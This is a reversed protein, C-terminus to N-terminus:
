AADKMEKAQEVLRMLARLAENIAEPTKFFDLLDSDIKIRQSRAYARLKETQEWDIKMNALDYEPAIDDTLDCEGELIKM